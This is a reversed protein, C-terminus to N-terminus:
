FIRKFYSVQGDFRYISGYVNPKNLIVCADNVLYRTPFNDTGDVVIDYDKVIDLANESSLATDHLIYNTHPNLNKLREKASKLKSKGIQDMGFLVQRQLNSEDVIDFDPHTIKLGNYFEIKGFAAIQDAIKFKDMIWSLGNFWICQLEGTGDSITVQFLRRKGLVKINKSIVKGIVVTQEGIKTQNIPKINTRDLYKRPIHYLIDEITEIGYTKLEKGRKPGVGKLYTIDDYLPNSFSM